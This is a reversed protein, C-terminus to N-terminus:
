RDELVREDDFCSVVEHFAVDHERRVLEYKDEDWLFGIDM